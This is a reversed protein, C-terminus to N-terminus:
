SRLEEAEVLLEPHLKQLWARETLTLGKVSCCPDLLKGQVRALVVDRLLGDFPRKVGKRVSLHKCSFDPDFCTLHLSFLLLREQKRSGKCRKFALSVVLPNTQIEETFYRYFEFPGNHPM